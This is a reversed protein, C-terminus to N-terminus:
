PVRDRHRALPPQNILIAEVRTACSLMGKDIFTLTVGEYPVQKLSASKLLYIPFFISAWNGALKSSKAEHYCPMHEVVAGCCSGESYKMSKYAGKLM